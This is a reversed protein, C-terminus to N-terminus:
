RELEEISFAALLHLELTGPYKKTNFSVPLHM